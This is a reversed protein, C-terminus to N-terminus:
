SPRGGPGPKEDSAPDGKQSLVPGFGGIMEKAVATKDKVAPDLIFLLSLLGWVASILVARKVVDSDAGILPAVAVYGLGPILSGLLFKGTSIAKERRTARAPPLPARYHASRWNETSFAHIQQATLRNLTEWSRGAPVVLYRKMHRFSEAVGNFWESMWQETTRDRFTVQSALHNETISAARELNRLWQRRQVPDGRFEPDEIHVMVEALMGAIWGRGNHRDYTRWTFYWCTLMGFNLLGTVGAAGAGFLLSIGLWRPWLPDNSMQVIATGAVIAVAGTASAAATAVVYGPLTTYLWAAASIVGASVLFITATALLFPVEGRLLWACAIAGLFCLTAYILRFSRLVMGWQDSKRLGGLTARDVEAHLNLEQARSQYKQSDLIAINKDLLRAQRELSSEFKLIWRDSTLLRVANLLKQWWPWYPRSPVSDSRLGIWVRRSKAMWGARRYIWYMEYQVRADQAIETPLADYFVLAKRVAGATFLVDIYSAAIRVDAPAIRHAADICDFAKGFADAEHHIQALWYYGQAMTSADGLWTEARAKVEEYAEDDFLQQM